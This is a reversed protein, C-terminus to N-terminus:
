KRPSGAFREILAEADDDRLGTEFSTKILYPSLAGMRDEDDVILFDVDLGATDLWSQIEAGRGGELEPTAGILDTGLGTQRLAQSITPLPSLCRWSSSLVLLCGSARVVRDLRAVLVPDLNCILEELDLDLDHIPRRELWARHNLVGDIDLFLIRPM